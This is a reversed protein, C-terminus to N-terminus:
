CTLHLAAAVAQHECLRNYTNCAETTPQSVLEIGAQELASRTEPTVNMRSFTGQGVIILNPKVQLVPEIDEPHVAHGEKRWWGAIVRDPLLIVDRTHPQGDIVVRGFRYSDIRPISM